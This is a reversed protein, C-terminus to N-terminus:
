TSSTRMRFGYLGALTAAMAAIIGASLNAGVGTSGGFVLELFTPAGLAIAALSFTATGVLAISLRPPAWRTGSMPGRRALAFAALALLGLAGAAVRYEVVEGWHHMAAAQGCSRGPFYELYEACRASTYTVGNTDGAVFGAGWVRGMVEAVLASLGIAILGFASLVWAGSFLQRGLGAVNRSVIREARALSAPGGFRQIVQEAAAADSMGAAVLDAQATRLHDEAEALTRRGSSGTGSLEDFYRDLYEDIADSM